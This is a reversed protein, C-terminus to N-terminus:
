LQTEQPPPRYARLAADLARAAAFLGAEHGARGILQVGVPLGEDTWGAPLTLAPLGAINALCTFDAQSAPAPSALAFGAQPTTPLLILGHEAVAAHMAAATEALIRQDEAWDDPRRRPGYTLLKALAPSILKADVGHLAAALAKSVAIFGAFRTRSLPHPLTFSTEVMFPPTPRQPSSIPLPAHTAPVSASIPGGSGLDGCKASRVALWYASLAAGECEVGGLGALTAPSGGAARDGFGGLLRAVRELLDLSRAIPGISDFEAYAIDLGDHSVSGRAPKFGYVGCYAAPIRISGMTDTGLAVDCLGAAVAAASGGSSGGATYGHAWPNHTPGFWPNDTVAGLAAEDMNTVGIIAAGAARLRHVVEADREAIRERHLAMGATWPLRAAAINAKVGASVGGLPGAGGAWPEAAFATFANLRANAARVEAPTV